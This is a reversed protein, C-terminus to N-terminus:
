YAVGWYIMHKAPKGCCACVEDLKEQEFPICRSSMGAEEKMKLECAQEGCWMTKIFGGHEAQLAKAEEISRAPFIHQELNLKAKEYLGKQVLELQEAAAQELESLARLDKGRQREQGHRM